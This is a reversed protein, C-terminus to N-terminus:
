TKLKWGARLLFYSTIGLAFTSTGLILFSQMIPFELYGTFGYRLLNIMYVIPNLASLSVFMEPLQKIPYFVGGLFTLPMMVFNQIFANKDFENAWLGVIVGIFSFFLGTLISSGLIIPISVPNFPVFYLTSLLTMFGVLLGRLTASTAYGLLLEFATLPISMLDNVLNQYKMIMISTSPNQYANNIIGMIILGPVIFSLYDIGDISREIAVAFVVFFLLNSVVPSLLTQLYVKLYRRNERMFFTWTGIPNNLM